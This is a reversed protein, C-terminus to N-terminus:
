NIENLYKSRITHDKMIVLYRSYHTSNNIFDLYAEFYDVEDLKRNKNSCKYDSKNLSLLFLKKLIEYNKM